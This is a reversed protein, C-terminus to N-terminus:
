CVSSPSLSSPFRLVWVGVRGDGWEGLFGERSGAVMELNQRPWGWRPGVRGGVIGCGGGGSAGAFRPGRGRSRNDVILNRDSADLSDVVSLPFALEIWFRHGM